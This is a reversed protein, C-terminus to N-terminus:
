EGTALRGVTAVDLRDAVLAPKGDWADFLAPNLTLGLQESMALRDFYRVTGAFQVVDGPEYAEGAPLPVTMPVGVGYGGVFANPAMLVLLDDAALDSGVTVVRDTLLEDIRGTVAVRDGEYEAPEAVISAAGVTQTPELGDDLVLLVALIAALM